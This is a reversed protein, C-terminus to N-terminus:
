PTVDNLVVFAPGAEKELKEALANAGEPTPEAGVLVSWTKYRDRFVLDAKGYEGQLRDRLKDADARQTFVGVQVAFAEIGRTPPSSIVRLRVNAVGPMSISQAAAHSLDIIRNKVFPGRDNVRVQTTKGNELDEVQLVTGFALTRHAATMKEMDYTEGNATLRGNFPEGYWSAIGIETHEEKAPSPKRCSSLVAVSVIILFLTTRSFCHSRIRMRIQALM